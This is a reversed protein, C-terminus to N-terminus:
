DDEEPPPPGHEMASYIVAWIFVAYVFLVLAPLVRFLWTSPQDWDLGILDDAYCGLLWTVFASATVVALLSRLWLSWPRLPKGDPRAPQRRGRETGVIGLPEPM